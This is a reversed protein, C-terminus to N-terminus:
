KIKKFTVRIPAIAEFFSAVQNEHRDDSELETLLDEYDDLISYAEKVNETTHRRPIRDYLSKLKDKLEIM